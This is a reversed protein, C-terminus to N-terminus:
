LQGLHTLLWNQVLISVPQLWPNGTSDGGNTAEHEDLREEGGDGDVVRICHLEGHPEDIPELLPNVSEKPLLSINNATTMPQYSPLIHALWKPPRPM